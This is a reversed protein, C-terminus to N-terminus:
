ASICVSPPAHDRVAHHASVSLCLCQKNKSYHESNSRLLFVSVSFETHFDNVEKSNLCSISKYCHQSSIEHSYILASMSKQGTTRLGKSKTGHTIMSQYLPSSYEKVEGWSVCNRNTQEDYLQWKAAWSSFLKWVRENAAGLTSTDTPFQASGRLLQNNHCYIDFLWQLTTSFWRILCDAHSKNASM